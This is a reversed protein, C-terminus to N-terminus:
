YKAYHDFLQNSSTLPSATTSPTPSSFPQRSKEHTSSQHHSIHHTKVQLTIFKSQNSVPNLKKQTLPSILPQPTPSVDRNKSMILPAGWDELSLPQPILKALNINKMPKKPPM